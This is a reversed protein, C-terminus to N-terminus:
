GSKRDPIQQCSFQADHNEGLKEILIENIRDFDFYPIRLLKIGKDECFKNKVEDRRKTSAL